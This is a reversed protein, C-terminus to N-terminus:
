RDTLMAAAVRWSARMGSKVSSRSPMGDTSQLHGHIVDDRSRPDTISLARKCESKIDEVLRRLDTRANRQRNRSKRRNRVVDGFRGGAKEFFDLLKIIAAFDTVDMKDEDSAVQTAVEFTM